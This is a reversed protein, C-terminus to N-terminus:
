GAAPSRIGFHERREEEIAHALATGAGFLGGAEDVPQAFAIAPLLGVLEPEVRERGVAIGVHAM